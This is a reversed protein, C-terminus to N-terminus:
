PDMYILLGPIAPPCYPCANPMNPPPALHVDVGGNVTFDGGTIYITVGGDRGLSDPAVSLSRGNMTMGNSICYLGPNLVLDDTNSNVRIRGWRGPDITGGGNHDGRAPVSNCDPTPLQLSFTPLPVTAETPTPSVDVSGNAPIYCGAGTCVAGEDIYVQVSGGARICANSFVGGGYVTVTNNGNFNVGGTSGTPCDDRLAVIAYGLGFPVKPRM